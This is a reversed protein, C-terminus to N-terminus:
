WGEGRCHAAVGFLSPRVEVFADADAYLTAFERVLELALEVTALRGGM